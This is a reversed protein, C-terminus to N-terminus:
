RRISSSRRRSSRRQRHQQDHHARHEQLGGHAGARRDPPRRRPDAAHRQLRRSAGERDRRLARRFLAQPPRARHPAGGEEYGVYGPPAGILRSVSHKEMYESMDIRVMAQEDDFLFEALARALETKGVGTPGSSSSRASPGTPIRCAPARAACPARCPRSPRTRGWWASRAPPGGHAAAKGERRGAPPQRSHADLGRRGRRHKGRHGGGAAHAPGEAARRPRGAGAPDEKRRRAPARVQDRRGERIRRPAPGAGGRHAPRRARRHRQPDAGILDKERQWHAKLAASKERLEALEKELAKLREKSADDKEKKLAEREIELQMIRRELEDIEVPMSDIEMRLRSAAEDVLDIAKDPLFRDAIYRHSLKAAEVLAGDQIRVGHHSRTASRAPRAPHRRHGRREARGRARAPLAAGARRGERHVQPVRGAHDRRRLATRRARARAQDHQLRGGRGRGRGRRGAHATRRHVPRDAGASDIVEKLFAKFRDEFEGRYKAGAIMAGLDLSVVRKNKLGEPVDGAVIRRALGEAIATKGVGPEGILVPNNKTRRSLVQM